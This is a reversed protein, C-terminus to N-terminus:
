PQKRRRTKKHGTAPPAPADYPEDVGAPPSVIWEGANLRRNAETLYAPLSQDGRKFHTLVELTTAIREAIVSTEVAIRSFQQQLTERIEFAM